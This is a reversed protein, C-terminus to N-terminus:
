MLLFLPILFFILDQFIFLPYIVPKQPYIFTIKARINLVNQGAEEEVVKKFTGNQKKPWSFYDKL